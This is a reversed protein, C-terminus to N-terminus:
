RDPFLTTVAEFSSKRAQEKLLELKVYEAKGEKFGLKFQKYDDETFTFLDTWIPRSSMTKYAERAERNYGVLGSLRGQELMVTKRQESM